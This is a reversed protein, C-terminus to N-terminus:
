EVLAMEAVLELDREEQDEALM